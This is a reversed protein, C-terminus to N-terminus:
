SSDEGADILSSIEKIRKVVCDLVEDYSAPLPFPRVRTWGRHREVFGVVDGYEVEIPLAIPVHVAKVEHFCERPDRRGLPQLASRVSDFTVPPGSTWVEFCLWLATDPYSDSSWRQCDVGFWAGAGAILMYRGYGTKRPSSRLGSTEVYGEVAARDGAEGVLGQLDLEGPQATAFESDEASGDTDAMKEALGRLQRIDEKSYAGVFTELRDLLYEWSTLMLHKQGDTGVSKFEPSDSHIGDTPVAKGILESWLTEIRPAPAVFLLAKGSPLRDLYANPQNVTLEAGFKAEIMLCENDNRDSGVIDPRKNEEGVQTRVSAISGVDAGGEQALKEIAQRAPESQLIYGLAEVAIDEHHKSFKWALHTLLTDGAHEDLM